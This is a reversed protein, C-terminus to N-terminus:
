VKKVIKDLHAQRKTELGGVFDSLRPTCWKLMSCLARTCEFYGINAGTCKWVQAQKGRVCCTHFLISSFGVSNKRGVFWSFIVAFDIPHMVREILAAETWDDNELM